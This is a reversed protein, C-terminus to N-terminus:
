ILKRLRDLATKLEQSPIKQSKKKFAHILHYEGDRMAYFIRIENRGRIRLEYLNQQLKKAYPPFLFPGQRSLLDISLNMRMRTKPDQRIIFSRVPEEGRATRFFRVSWSM